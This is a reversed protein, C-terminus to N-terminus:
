KGAIILDMRSNIERLYVEDGARQEITLFGSYGADALAKRVEPWNISGERLPVFEKTESKFDKLHVRVIRKGLTRIWDQPYGYLVINGVDFYARVRPSEFADVYRVFELPSLLFKNWVNEVAIVVKLKEALPLLKRIERQSREYADRYMTSPDVVAPVLLVADAGCDRANQLSVKMCDVGKAVVDLDASSLPSGWHDSNMISHIRVGTKEAASIMQKLTQPERVTGIEVGQFGVEAALKLREEVSLGGPLMGFGLGKKIEADNASEGKARLTRSATMAALAGATCTKVFSRRTIKEDM